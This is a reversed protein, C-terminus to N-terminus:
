ARVGWIKIITGARMASTQRVRVRNVAPCEDVDVSGNLSPYNNVTANNGTTAAAGLAYCFWLGCWSLCVATSTREETGCMNNCIVGGNNVDDGEANEGYLQVYGNATDSGAPVIIKIMLADFAFPTGDAETDIWVYSVGDDQIEIERVLRLRKASANLVDGVMELGEGIMVGGKVDASATPLTYPAPIENKLAYGDKEEELKGIRERAEADMVEFPEDYGPFRISKMGPVNM